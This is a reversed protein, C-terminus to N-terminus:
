PRGRGTIRDRLRDWPGAVRAMLKTGTASRPAAPRPRTPALPRTERAKPGLGDLVDAPCMARLRPFLLQEEEVVHDTVQEILSLLLTGFREEGAELDELARLTEAIRGQRDLDRDAWDDGDLVYRRVVPFLHERTVVSHRAMATSLQELLAKRGDGDRPAARIRDFLRQMRQHDAALEDILGSHGDM